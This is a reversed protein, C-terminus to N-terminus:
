AHRGSGAGPAPAGAGDGAPRYWHLWAAPLLVLAMGALTPVIGPAVALCAGALMALRLPVSLHRILFGQIAAAFGVVAVSAELVVLAIQPWDGILLLQPKYVFLYPILFAVVGMKSAQVATELPKSGAISAAAYAALALPPTISSIVGFYFIFLHAALPEVGMKILAPAVLVALMLYAPVTPLGMGLILSAVMALLLLMLLDGGAFEILVSSAKFGLGTLTFTGIVIGACACAVAILVGGVAGEHLADLLARPSPRTHRPLAAM